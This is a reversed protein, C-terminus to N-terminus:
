GRIAGALARHTEHQTSMAGVLTESQRQYSALIAQLEKIEAEQSRALRRGIQAQQEAEMSHGAAIFNEIVQAGKAGASTVSVAGSVLQASTGITKATSTAASAVSAGAGVLGVAGAGLSLAAAGISLALNIDDNKIVGSEALLSLAVAGLALIAAVSAGGTAVISAVAAVAAVAMGIKSLVNGIDGLIGANDRADREEALKKLMSDLAEQRQGKKAEVSVTRAVSDGERNRITLVQLMMMPDSPMDKPDAKPLLSRTAQIKTGAVNPARYAPSVSLAQQTRNNETTNMRM